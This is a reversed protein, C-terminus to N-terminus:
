GHNSFTVAMTATEAQPAQALFDIGGLMGLTVVCALGLNIARQLLTDITKLNM